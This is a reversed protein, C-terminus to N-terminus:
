SAKRFVKFEDRMVVTTACASNTCCFWREYYFVRRLEKATIERHQRIQMPHGCRACAPGEGPVVVANKGIRGSVLKRRGTRM